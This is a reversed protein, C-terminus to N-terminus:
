GLEKEAGAVLSIVSAIRDDAVTIEEVGDSIVFHLGVVSGSITRM